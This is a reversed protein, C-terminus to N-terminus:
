LSYMIHLNNNVPDFYYALGLESCWASLVSKLTGVHQARHTKIAGDRPKEAVNLGCEAINDLLENFTYYVPLIKLSLMDEQCSNKYANAPLNPCPDCPDVLGGAKNTYTSTSDLNGDCPGYTRGVLIMNGPKNDRQGRTGNLGHRGNLGVNWKELLISQDIYQLTLINQQASEEIDYGILYGNFKFNGL